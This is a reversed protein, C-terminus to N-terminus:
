AWYDTVHITEKGNEAGLNVLTFGEGPSAM